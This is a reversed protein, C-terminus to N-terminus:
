PNVLPQPLTHPKKDMYDKIGDGDSDLARGNADISAGKPTNPEADKANLVGDGDCDYTPNPNITFYFHQNQRVVVKQNKLITDGCTTKLSFDYINPALDLKTNETAIVWHKAGQTKYQFAVVTGVSNIHLHVKTKTSYAFSLACFSCFFLAFCSTNINM